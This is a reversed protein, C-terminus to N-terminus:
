LNLEKYIENYFEVINTFTIDVNQQFAMSIINIANFIIENQKKKPVFVDKKDKIYKEKIYKELTPFMNQILFVQKKGILTDFVYNYCKGYKMVKKNYIELYKDYKSSMPVFWIIEKEKKDRFCYYCPRHTTEKNQMINYKEGYKKIFKEEIFYLKGKELKIKKM